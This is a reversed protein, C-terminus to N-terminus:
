GEKTLLMADGYSFFCHQQAIAHWYVSATKIVAIRPFQCVAFPAAKAPELIVDNRDVKLLTLTFFAVM